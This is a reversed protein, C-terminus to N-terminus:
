YPSVVMEEIKFAERLCYKRVESISVGCLLKPHPNFSFFHILEFKQLCYNRKGILLIEFLITDYIMHLQSHCHNFIQYLTYFRPRWIEVCKSLIPTLVSDLPCLKTSGGGRRTSKVNIRWNRVVAKIYKDSQVMEIQLFLPSYDIHSFQGIIESFM